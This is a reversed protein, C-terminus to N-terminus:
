RKRKRPSMGLNSCTSSIAVSSCFLLFLRAMKLVKVKVVMFALHQINNQKVKFNVRGLSSLVDVGGPAGGGSPGQLLSKALASGSPAGRRLPPKTELAQFDFFATKETRILLIIFVSSVNKLIKNM